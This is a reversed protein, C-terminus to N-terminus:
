EVGQRRGAVSRGHAQKQRRHTRSRAVLARRVLGHSLVMSQEGIVSWAESETELMRKLDTGPPSCVTPIHIEDKDRM